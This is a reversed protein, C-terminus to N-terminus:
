LYQRPVSETWHRAFHSRKNVQVDLDITIHFHTATAQVAVDVRSETKHHPRTIGFSHRGQAGAQAPHHPDVYFTSISEREFVITDSIRRKSSVSLHVTTQDTLM